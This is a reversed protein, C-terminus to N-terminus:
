CSTTVCFSKWLTGKSSGLVHIDFGVRHKTTPNRVQFVNTSHTLSVFDVMFGRRLVGEGSSCVVVTAYKRQSLVLCAPGMNKM